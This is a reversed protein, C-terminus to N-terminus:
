YTEMKALNVTWFKVNKGIQFNESFVKLRLITLFQLSIQLQDTADLTGYLVIGM